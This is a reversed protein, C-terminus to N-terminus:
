CLTSNEQHKQCEYHRNLSRDTTFSVNCLMCHYKKENIHNNINVKKPEKQISLRRGKGDRPQIKYLAAEFKAKKKIVATVGNHWTDADEFQMGEEVAQLLHPSIEPLRKM